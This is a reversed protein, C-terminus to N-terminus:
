INARQQSNGNLYEIITDACTASIYSIKYKKGGADVFNIKIWIGTEKSFTAINKAYIETVPMAFPYNAFLIRDQLVLLFGGQSNLECHACAIVEDKEKLLRFICTMFPLGWIKFLFDPMKLEKRFTDIISNKDYM